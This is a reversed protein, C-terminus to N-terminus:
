RDHGMSGIYLPMAPRGVSRGGVVAPRPGRGRRTSNMPLPASLPSGAEPRRPIDCLMFPYERIIHSVAATTHNASVPAAPHLHRGIREGKRGNQHLLQGGILGPCRVLLLQGAAQLVRTAAGSEEDVPVAVQHGARVHQQRPDAVAVQVEGPLLPIGHPPQHLHLLVHPHVQALSLIGAIVQRPHGRQGLVEIEGGQAHNQGGALPPLEGEKGDGPRVAQPYSL